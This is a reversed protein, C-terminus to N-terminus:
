NLFQSIRELDEEHAVRLRSAQKLEGEVQENTPRGAKKEVCGKEVLWKNAQYNGDMANNIAGKLGESRLKIELEERWDRVEKIVLKNGLCRQWHKWSYFYETAFSYETPDGCELYLQKLSPLVRGDPLTYDEEKLTYLAREHDNKLEFFLAQTLFNGTKPCKYKSM